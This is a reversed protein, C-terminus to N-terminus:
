RLPADAPVPVINRETVLSHTAFSSQGCYDPTFLVRDGPKVRSVAGGVGEISLEAGAEWAVAAQIKV